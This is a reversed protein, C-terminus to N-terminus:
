DNTTKLHGNHDCKLSHSDNNELCHAFIRQAPMIMHENVDNNDTMPAHKFVKNITDYYKNRTEM